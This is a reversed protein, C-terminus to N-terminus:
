GKNELKKIGHQQAGHSLISWGKTKRNKIGRKDHGM